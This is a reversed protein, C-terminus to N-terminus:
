APSALPKSKEVAFTAAITTKVPGNKGEHPVGVPVQYADGPKLSLTGIGDITLETGGEIMYGSEVGPHTHRAIPADPDIEVRMEITVYGPAPGDTEKLKTRTLGAAQAGSAFFSAAACFACGAFARRTLMASKRM